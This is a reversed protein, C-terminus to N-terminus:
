VGRFVEAKRFQVATGNNHNVSYETDCIFKGHTQELQERLKAKIKEQPSSNRRYGYGSSSYTYTHEDDYM